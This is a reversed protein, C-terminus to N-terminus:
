PLAVGKPLLKIVDLLLIASDLVEQYKEIIFKDSSQPNDWVNKLENIAYQMAKVACLFSRSINLIDSSKIYEEHIISKLQTKTEYKLSSLIPLMEVLHQPSFGEIMECSFQIAQDIRHDFESELADWTRETQRIFLVDEPTKNLIQNELWHHRLQGRIMDAECPINYPSLM